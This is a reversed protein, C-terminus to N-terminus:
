SDEVDKITIRSKFSTNRSGDGNKGPRKPKVDELLQGLLTTKKPGARKEYDAIQTMIETMERALAATDRAGAGKELKEAIRDRTARLVGLRDNALALEVISQGAAETKPKTLGSQHIKNIRHPNSIIDHWMSLAAYAETPLIDMGTSALMRIKNPSLTKFYNLWADYDPLNPLEIALNLDNWKKQLHVYHKADLNYFWREHLREISPPTKHTARKKLTDRNQPFREQFPKNGQLLNPLPM